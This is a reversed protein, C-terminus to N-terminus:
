WVQCTPCSCIRSFRTQPRQIDRLTERTAASTRSDVEDLDPTKGSPEGPTSRADSSQGEAKMHAAAQAEAESEMAEQLMEQVMQRLNTSGGKIMLMLRLRGCWATGGVAKTTQPQQEVIWRATVEMGGRPGFAPHTEQFAKVTQDLKVNAAVIWARVGRYADQPKRHAGYLRMRLRKTTPTLPTQIAVPNPLRM